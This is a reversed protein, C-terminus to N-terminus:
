CSRSTAPNARYCGTHITFTFSDVGAGVGRTARIAARNLAEQQRLRKASLKCGESIAKLCRSHATDLM